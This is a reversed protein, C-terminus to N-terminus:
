HETAPGNPVLCLFELPEVGTNRFQHEEHPEILLATDPAVCSVGDGHVVKGVGRIVYVEHEWAHSHRPTHGGPEVIFRRMAFNPADCTPEDLLWQMSVGKAGETEVDSCECHEVDIMHM